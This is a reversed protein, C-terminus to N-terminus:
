CPTGADDCPPALTNGSNVLGSLSGVTGFWQHTM